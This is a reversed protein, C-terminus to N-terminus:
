GYCESNCLMVICSYLGDAAPDATFTNVCQNDAAMDHAIQAACICDQFTQWGMPPPTGPPCDKQICM